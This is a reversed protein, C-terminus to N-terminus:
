RASVGHRTVALTADCLRRLSEPPRHPCLGYDPPNSSQLGQRCALLLCGNHGSLKATGPQFRKYEAREDGAKDSQRIRLGRISGVIRREALVHRGGGG